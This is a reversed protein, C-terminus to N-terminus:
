KFGFIIFDILIANETNLKPKSKVTAEQLLLLLPSSVLMSEAPM